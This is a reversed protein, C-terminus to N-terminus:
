QLPTYYIDLVTKLTDEEDLVTVAYGADDQELKGKLGTINEFALMQSPNSLLITGFYLSRSLTLNTVTYNTGINYIDTLLRPNKMGREAAQSVYAKVYAIQRERRAADGELTSERARIFTEAEKGNLTIQEGKKYKDKFNNPCTVTIGGLADNLAAIGDLDLAVYTNIPVGYLVRQVSDVANDCSTRKGDGYAYSLCLQEKHSGMYDGAVSYKSVDVLSDRPLVIVHSEGTKVNLTVVMNVDNQGVKEVLDDNIGFSRKDVGFFAFSTIDTNYLYEVGNYFISNQFNDGYGGEMTEQKGNQYMYYVVGVTAIIIALLLALIIIIARQWKKMKRWRRAAKSHSKSSYHHRRKDSNEDREDVQFPEKQPKPAEPPQQAAAAGAGLAAAANEAASDSQEPEEEAGAAPQAAKEGSSQAQAAQAAPSEEAAQDANSSDVSSEQQLSQLSQEELDHLAKQAARDSRTKARFRESQLAAMGSALVVSELYEGRSEQAVRRGEIIVESFDDNSADDHKFTVDFDEFDTRIPENEISNNDNNQQSM